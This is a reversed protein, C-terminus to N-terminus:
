STMCIHIYEIGNLRALTIHTFAKQKWPVRPFSWWAERSERGGIKERRGEGKKGGGGRGERERGKRRRGGM